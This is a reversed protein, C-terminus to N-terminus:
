MAGAALYGGVAAVVATLLVPWVARRPTQLPGLVNEGRLFEGLNKSAVFNRELQLFREALRPRQSLTLLVQPLLATMEDRMSSGFVKSRMIDGLIVEVEKNSDIDPAYRLVIGEVITLNRLVVLLESPAELRYRAGIRMGKILQETIRNDALARSGEEEDRFLQRM